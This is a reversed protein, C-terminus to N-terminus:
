LRRLVLYKNLNGTRGDADFQAELEACGTNALALILADIEENSFSHCYRYVGSVKQWGLLHDGVELDEEDLQLDLLAQERLDQAQEALKPSKMFQWFSVVIVGGPRVLECLSRLVFERTSAGPVHHMFGFCVLADPQVASHIDLLPTQDLAQTILDLDQFSALKIKSSVEDLLDPRAQNLLDAGYDIASLEVTLEPCKMKLYSEFRLNGCAVDMLNLSPNALGLLTTTSAAVSELYPLCKAWGPWGAQRTQSFSQAQEAYFRSTAANLINAVRREM